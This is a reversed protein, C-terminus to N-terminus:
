KPIVNLGKRTFCLDVKGQFVLALTAKNIKVVAVKTRRQKLEM